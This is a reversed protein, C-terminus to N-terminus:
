SLLMNELEGQSKPVGVFNHLKKMVHEYSGSTISFDSADYPLLLSFSLFASLGEHVCPTRRPGLLANTM